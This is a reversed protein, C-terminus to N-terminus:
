FNFICILFVGTVLWHIRIFNFAGFELVKCDAVLAGDAEARCPSVEGEFVLAILQLISGSPSAVSLRQAFGGQLKV